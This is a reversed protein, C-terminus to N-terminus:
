KLFWLFGIPSSDCLCPLFYKPLLEYLCTLALVHLLWSMSSLGPSSYSLSYEPREGLSDSKHPRSQTQPMPTNDSCDLNDWHLDLKLFISALHTPEKRVKFQSPFEKLPKSHFLSFIQSMWQIHFKPVISLSAPMSYIIQDLILTMRSITSNAKWTKVTYM